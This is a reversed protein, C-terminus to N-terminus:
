FTKERWKYISMSLIMIQFSIINQGRKQSSILDSPIFVESPFISPPLKRDRKYIKLTYSTHLMKKKDSHMKM